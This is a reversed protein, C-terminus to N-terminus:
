RFKYCGKITNNINNSLRNIINIVTKPGGLDENDIDSYISELRDTLKILKDECTNNIPEHTESDLIGDVKDLLNETNNKVIKIENDQSTKPNIDGPYGPINKDKLWKNLKSRESDSWEKGDESNIDEIKDIFTNLEDHYEHNKNSDITYLAYDEYSEKLIKRILNKM